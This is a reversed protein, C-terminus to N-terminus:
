QSVMCYHIGQLESSLPFPRNKKRMKKESVALFGQKKYSGKTSSTRAIKRKLNRQILKNSNSGMCASGQMLEKSLM